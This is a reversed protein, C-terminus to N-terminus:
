NSIYQTTGDEPSKLFITKSEDSKEYRLSFKIVNGGTKTFYITDGIVYYFGKEEFMSTLYYYSNDAFFKLRYYPDGHDVAPFEKDVLLDYVEENNITNSIDKSTSKIFKSNEIRFLVDYRYINKGDNEFLVVYVQYENDSIKSVSSIDIYTLDVYWSKYTDFDITKNSLIYAEKFEKKNLLSYYKKIVDENSDQAHIICIANFLIM